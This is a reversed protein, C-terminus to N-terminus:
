ILVSGDETEVDVCLEELTELAKRLNEKTCKIKLNLQIPAPPPAECFHSFAKRVEKEKSGSVPKEV